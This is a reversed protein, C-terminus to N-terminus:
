FPISDEVLTDSAPHALQYQTIENEGLYKLVVNKAKYNGNAEQKGVSVWVKKNLCDSPLLNGSEYQKSLEALECFQQMKEINYEALDDWMKRQRGNKDECSLTLSIKSQGKQTTAEKAEVITMLYNGIPLLKLEQIENKNLPTFNM